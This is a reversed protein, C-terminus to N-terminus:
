RNKLEEMAKMIRAERDAEDMKEKQKDFILSEYDNLFQLDSSLCKRFEYPSINKRMWANGMHVYLM